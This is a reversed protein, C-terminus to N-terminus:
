KSKRDLKSPIKVLEVDKWHAVESETVSTKGKVKENWVWIPILYFSTLRRGFGIVVYALAQQLVICDAPTQAMGADAIKHYLTGEYAQTLAQKQHPALDPIYFRDTETRKLEFAASGNNWKAQVWHKFVVQMAAETKKM